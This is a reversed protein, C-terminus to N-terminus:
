GQLGLRLLWAVLKLSLYPIRRHENSLQKQTTVGVGGVPSVCVIRVVASDVSRSCCGGCPKGDIMGDTECCQDHGLMM